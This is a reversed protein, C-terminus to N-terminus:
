RGPFEEVHTKWLLKGTVADVAYANAHQDGFYAAWGSGNQGLSVATRVPGDTDFAWYICATEASLSYVRRESSGVFVRGGAVTAQAQARLVGPFGFAWKLKLKPVQEATLQAMEAPQFRHQGLDVGWGNWYPKALPDAFARERDAACFAAAPIQEKVLQRGTLFEALDAIQATSLGLGEVAM